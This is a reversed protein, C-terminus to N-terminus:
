SIRIEALEKKTIKISENVENIYEEDQLIKKINNKITSAAQELGGENDKNIFEEVLDNDMKIMELYTDEGYERLDVATNYFKIYKLAAEYASDIDSIYAKNFEDACNDLQNVIVDSSEAIGILCVTRSLVDDLGMVNNAIETAIFKGINYSDFVSSEGILEEILKGSLDDIAKNKYENLIQTMGGLIVSKENQLQNSLEEAAAALNQNEANNKITDLVDIYKQYAELNAEIQACEYFTDFAKVSFTLIESGFKLDIKVNELTSQIKKLNSNEDEIGSIYATLNKVANRVQGSNECDYLKRQYAYLEDLIKGKKEIEINSENEIFSVAEKCYPIISENVISIMIKEDESDISDEAYTEIYKLLAGRYGSKEGEGSLNSLLGNGMTVDSFKVLTKASTSEALFDRFLSAMYIDDNNLYNINHKPTLSSRKNETEEEMGEIINEKQEDTLNSNLKSGNDTENDTNIYNVTYSRVKQILSLKYDYVEDKNEQAEFWYMGDIRLEDYVDKLNDTKIVIKIIHKNGSCKSKDHALTEKINYLQGGQLNGINYSLNKDSSYCDPITVEAKANKAENIINGNKNETLIQAINMIEFSFDVSMKDASVSYKGNTSLKPNYQTNEDYITPNSTMEFYVYEGVNNEVDTENINDDIVISGMEVGDSIGDGDTDANKPDTIILEGFQNRMGTSEVLDPLGDGDTDTSMDVGIYAQRIENFIEEINNLDAKFYKGGTKGAINILTNENVDSGFGITIIKINKEVANNVVEESVQSNGDTLLIEINVCEENTDDINVIAAEIASDISTGGTANVRDISNDVENWSIIDDYMVKNVVTFANDNFGCLTIYDGGYLAKIFASACEKSMESKDDNGMSGSSDLAIFVDFYKKEASMDRILMQSKAWSDYWENSDVVIYKSFHETKVSVTNKDTDVGSNELLEMRGLEENYYAIKLNEAECNLKEPNYTFVIEANKVKRRKANIDIGMGVKGATGNMNDEQSVIDIKVRGGIGSLVYNVKVESIEGDTDINSFVTGESPTFLYKQALTFTVSLLVFVAAGILLIKKLRALLVVKEVNEIIM